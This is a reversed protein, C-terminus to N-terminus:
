NSLIVGHKYKKCSLGEIIASVTEAKVKSTQFSQCALPLYCATAKRDSCLITHYSDMNALTGHVNLALRVTLGLALEAV